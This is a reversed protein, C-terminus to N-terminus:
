TTLVGDGLPLYKRSELQGASMDDQLEYRLQINPPSGWIHSVQSLIGIEQQSALSGYEKVGVEQKRAFGLAHSKPEPM